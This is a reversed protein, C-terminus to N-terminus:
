LNIYIALLGIVAIVIGAFREWNETKKSTKVTIGYVKKQKWAYFKLMQKPKLAAIIGIILLLIGFISVTM